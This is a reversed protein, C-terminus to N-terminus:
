TSPITYCFGAPSCLLLKAGGSRYHSHPLNGSGGLRGLCTPFGAGCYILNDIGGTRRDGFVVSDKKTRTIRLHDVGPPGKRWIGNGFREQRTVFRLSYESLM